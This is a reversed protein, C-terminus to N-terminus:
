KQKLIPVIFMDKSIEIESISSPLVDSDLLVSQGSNEIAGVDAEPYDGKPGIRVTYKGPPVVDITAAGYEDTVSSRVFNTDPENLEVRMDGVGGSLVAYKEPLYPIPRVVKFEITHTNKVSTEEFISSAINRLFLFTEPLYWLGIAIILYPLIKQFM